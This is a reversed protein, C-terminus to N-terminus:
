IRQDIRLSSQRWAFATHPVFNWQAQAVKRVSSQKGAFYLRHVNGVETEIQRRLEDRLGGCIVSGRRPQENEVFAGPIQRVCMHGAQGVVEALAIKEDDVIRFHKRSTQEARADWAAAGDFTQEKRVEFVLFPIREHMRTLLKSGSRFHDELARPVHQVAFNQIAVEVAPARYPQPGLAAPADLVCDIVDTM